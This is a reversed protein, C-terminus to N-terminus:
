SDAGESLISGGDDHTASLSKRVLKGHSIGGSVECENAPQLSQERSVGEAELDVKWGRIHKQIMQLAGPWSEKSLATVM